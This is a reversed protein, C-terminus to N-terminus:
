KGDSNSAYSDLLDIRSSLEILERLAIAFMTFEPDSTKFENLFFEWRSLLEKHKSLWNEIRDDLSPSKEIDNLLINVTLNRQEKDVDDRYAARALAEWYNKVPQKKILEGFWSLQLRSGVKYFVKAVEQIDFNNLRTAEVIDLATFMPYFNSAKIALDKSVGMAVLRDREHKVEELWAGSLIQEMNQQLTQIYPKYTKISEEIDCGIPLNRVFWRTARRILRNLDQWMDLQVNVSVKDKLDWIEQLTRKVDFVDRAIMYARAIHQSEVGTEEMLRQIFNIGMENVIYNSIRTAIIARKLRHKKIFEIYKQTQLPKPFYYILDREVYNEDLLTTSLLQKKFLNKTYAMLVALEPRTYGLKKTIRLAVEEGDPLYEVMPDLGADRELDKQLRNHMHLYNPAEYCSLILACNQKRNNALVLKAVEDTMSIMLENRQKETMDSAEILENLLIKINVENDSCNVGGSNDIADTNIVGGNKAYEIRGLQTFGLNGGECVVRARLQNGNIRILDNSRDGVDVNRQITAKVFTGIGGNFFLDVELMLIAQILENPEMYDRETRLVKKIAESLVIKKLSRDFVGGGESILDPNYDKWTSTPLNFMRLREQYSTEPNPNPDFFIHMHNFAAILKINESQLMGNGFVDGAMDGVGIVTFPQKIDISLLTFHLKVSEWAGRATIAMKKHDYGASGGSAFADGLWFKYEKAISNAIDSFSATGKDAAVVLYTDEKDWCITQQPRVVQQEVYNDTIDLLGQMFTKYCTIVAKNREERTALKQLDMKVVFGGKAGLPVIVANKVQQAKMLGLVETRFDEARDSWRIGGRAIRDGRLHIAEVFTAYVFIEFIPKPLPLDPVKSSNFKYSIYNKHKDDANLQFFNTRLMAEMAGLYIRIIKDENLSAVSDLGDFIFKKIEALKSERDVIQVVPNFKVYFYELLKEALQTNNFIADEVSSQSFAFGTQWLYRYLSRFISIDRWEMQATLVLRNFRDNEAKEQWVAAFADQFIDKIVDPNSIDGGAQVMRYDTIWVKNGDKFILEHPREGIIRLGMKELIPVVDSLPISNNYRFLKFRLSDEPDEIPRYLTMELDQSKSKRLVEIHNIDLVAVSANFIEKYSWPFANVYYKYLANAQEEGYHANLADNLDDNWTRSAEILKEEIISKDFEIEKLQDVRIIFHIRALFSEFFQTEYSVSQGALSHMLIEQMKTRLYSSFLERPVFVFCSFYRGYVDRRVFLKIKQRDQLHLIGIACDFLERDRAQFLEDRPLTNLIHLLTRGDHSHKAFGALNFIREVKQRIYPINEVLENYVISTYLGVFRVMRTVKNNEDFFKIGIFDTYAERHVTAITDTKGLLLIEHNLFAERAGPYMNDINRNLSSIKPNSLVGAGSQPVYQMIHQKEDNEVFVYEACGIFTFNNDILWRLFAITENLEDSAVQEQTTELTAISELLKNLMLSWDRVMLDVDELVNTLAAYIEQIKKPDSQRDIEIYIPAEEVPLNANNAFLANMPLVKTICGENNREFRIGEAHILLRINLDLKHLALRISDLIFPKKEHSIEIITHTAEWGHQELQPNYVRVKSESPLRKYIFQWQSILAGYLEDLSKERLDYPSASLYYQVLFDKILSSAPENIKHDIITSLKAILDARSDDLGLTM